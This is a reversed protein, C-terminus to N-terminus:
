RLFSQPFIFVVMVSYFSLDLIVDVDLYNKKHLYLFFDKSLFHLLDIADHKKGGETKGLIAQVAM